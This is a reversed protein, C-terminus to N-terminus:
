FFWEGSVLLLLLLYLRATWLLNDMTSSFQFQAGSQPSM